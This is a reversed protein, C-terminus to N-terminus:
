ETVNPGGTVAGTSPYFTDEEICKFGINGDANRRCPRFTKVVAGNEYIEFQKVWKEFAKKTYVSHSGASFIRLTEDTAAASTTGNWGKNTGDIKCTGAGDCNLELAHWVVQPNSSSLSETFSNIDSSYGKNTGKYARYTSADIGYAMQANGCLGTYLNNDTQMSASRSLFTLKFGTKATSSYLTDVEGTKATGVAAYELLTYEASPLDAQATIVLDGTLAGVPVDVVIKYGDGIAEDTTKIYSYKDTMDVGGIKVSHSAYTTTEAPTLECYYPQYKVLSATENSATLNTLNRTIAATGISLKVADPTGDVMARMFANIKAETIGLSGVWNLIKDRFTAGVKLNNIQTILGITGSTGSWGLKTRKRDTNDGMLGVNFNTLEYDKDIADQPVGLIAEVVCAVTGTRDAGAACHFLVPRSTIANDMIVTLINRWLEKDSIDYWAYRDFRHFTVDDGLPSSTDTSENGLLNLDTVIGLQDVLVARDEASPMGSRFIKGYKVTGGNCPWGGLDRANIAANIWRLHYSPALTGVQVVNGDADLVAFPHDTGPVLNNITKSGASVTEKHSGIVLTGGALPVAQGVPRTNSEVPATPAYDYIRTYSYDAPDYSTEDLYRKVIDPCQVWEYRTPDLAGGGVEIASIAAAMQETTLPETKGTKARIADAIAKQTSEKITRM